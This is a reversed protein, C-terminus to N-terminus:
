IEVKPNRESYPVFNHVPERIQITIHHTIKMGVVVGILFALLWFFRM